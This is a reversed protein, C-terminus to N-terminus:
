GPAVAPMQLIILMAESTDMAAVQAGRALSFITYEGHGCGADLVQQGPQIDFFREFHNARVKRLVAWELSEKRESIRATYEDWDTGHNENDIM